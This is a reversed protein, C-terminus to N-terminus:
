AKSHVKPSLNKKGPVAYSGVECDVLEAKGREVERGIAVGTAVGTDALRTTRVGTEDAVGTGEGLGVEISEGGTTSSGVEEDDITSEAGEAVSSVDADTVGAGAGDVSEAEARTPM